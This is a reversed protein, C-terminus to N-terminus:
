GWAGGGRQRGRRLRGSRGNEDIVVAAAPEVAALREVDDLGAAFGDIPREWGGGGAIIGELGDQEAGAVAQQEEEVLGAADDADLWGGGGGFGEGDLRDEGM